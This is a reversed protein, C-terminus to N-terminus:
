QAFHPGGTGCRQDPQLASHHPAQAVYLGSGPGHRLHEPVAIAERAGAPRYTLV